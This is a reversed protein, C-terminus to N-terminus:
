WSNHTAVGASQCARSGPLRVPGCQWRMWCKIALARARRTVITSTPGGHYKQFCPGIRSAISSRPKCTM